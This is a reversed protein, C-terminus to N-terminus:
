FGDLYRIENEKIWDYEWLIGLHWGHVQIGGSPCPRPDCAQCPSTAVLLRPDIEALFSPNTDYGLWIWYILPYKIINIPININDWGYIQLKLNHNETWDNCYIIIIPQSITKIHWVALGALSGEGDLGNSVMSRDDKLSPEAISFVVALVLVWFCGSVLCCWCCCPQLTDCRLPRWIDNSAPLGPLIELIYIYIFIYIYIYIYIIYIHEWIGAQILSLRAPCGSNSRSHNGGSSSCWCYWTWV